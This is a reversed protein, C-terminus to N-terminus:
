AAESYARLLMLAARLCDDPEPYGNTARSAEAYVTAEFTDKCWGTHSVANLIEKFKNFSEVTSALLNRGVFPELNEKSVSFSSSNRLDRVFLGVAIGAQKKTKFNIPLIANPDPLKKWVETLGGYGGSLSFTEIAWGEPKKVMRFTGHDNSSNVSKFAGIYVGREQTKWEIFHPALYIAAALNRSSSTAALFSSFYSAYKTNLFGNSFHSTGHALPTLPSYRDFCKHIRVMEGNKPVNIRLHAIGSRSHKHITFERGKHDKATWDMYGDKNFKLPQVNMWLKSEKTYDAQRYYEQM